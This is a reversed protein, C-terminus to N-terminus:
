WSSSRDCTAGTTASEPSPRQVASSATSSPTGAGTIVIASIARNELWPRESAARLSRAIIRALNPPCATRPGCHDRHHHADGSRPLRGDAARHGFLEAPREEVAVVEMRRRVDGLHCRARREGVFIAPWPEIPQIALGASAFGPALARNDGARREL